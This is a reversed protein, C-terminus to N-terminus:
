HLSGIMWRLCVLEHDTAGIAKEKAYELAELRHTLTNGLAVATQEFDTAAKSKNESGINNQSEM